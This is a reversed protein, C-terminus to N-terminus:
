PRRTVPRVVALLADHIPGNSAVIDTIAASAIRRGRRDTVRGGAEEVLLQGASIDWAPMRRECYATLHGAAIHALLLAPAGMFRVGGAANMLRELDGVFEGIREEDSTQIQTAVIARRLDSVPSVRLPTDNVTAGGGRSAAFLQDHVPDYVAGAVVDDGARLAVSVCYWPIGNAFNSTGDLGDVYWVYGTDAGPVTGEEGVITHDPFAGRVVQVVAAQSARDASTTLDVRADKLTVDITARDTAALVAGGARAAAIAVKLCHEPAPEGMLPPAPEAAVAAADPHPHDRPNRVASRRGLVPRRVAAARVM